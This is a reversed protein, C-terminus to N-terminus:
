ELLGRLISFGLLYLRYTLYATAMVNLWAILPTLNFPLWMQILYLLDMVVSFNLGVFIWSITLNLLAIFAIVMALAYSYKMGIKLVDAAADM